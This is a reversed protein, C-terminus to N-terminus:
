QGEVKRFAAEIRKRQRDEDRRLADPEYRERLRRVDARAQWLAQVTAELSSAIHDPVQWQDIVARFESRTDRIDEAFIQVHRSAGCTFEPFFRRYLRGWSPPKPYAPDRPIM